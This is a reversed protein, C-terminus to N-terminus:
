YKYFYFIFETDEEPVIFNVEEQTIKVSNSSELVNEEFVVEKSKIDEKKVSNINNTCGINFIMSAILLIGIVKKKNM